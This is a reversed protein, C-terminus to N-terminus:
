ARPPPGFDGGQLIDDCLRDLDPDAGPALQDIDDVTIRALGLIHEEVGPSPFPARFFFLYAYRRVPEPDPAFATPDDLVADLSEAFEEPTSVDVTFGKGRYHSQGAVIVPTGALALEVGTTSTFVLGVDAEAMLPYSSTPDDAAVVRVNPPLGDPFRRALFEGIPERTQKGPLKVEAPHIRIVLEDDPRGAFHAVSAAVWSQISDFAVEQGIVASDWTLNTFLVALRGPRTRVPADFRADGWFRDITRQGTQRATLYEDLEASEAGTLAQGQWADWIDDIALICAAEDRRFLWKEKILGREYTVVPIGRERCVAWVVAEFVFLGNLLVVVDPRIRDLAASAGAAIRRASRLFARMTQPALPDDATQAAMLFWKAPIDVLEGLALGDHTVSGLQDLRLEDLEPWAGDHDDAGEWGDRLSTRPLGHADVSGEVYRTCTTCPMPPAEWTNARDCIELGGGCTIVDVRAGRVRLAQALVGEWQVHVAWDRPMVFAVKPADADPEGIREAVQAALRRAARQEPAQAVQRLGLHVAKVSIEGLRDRSPLAM